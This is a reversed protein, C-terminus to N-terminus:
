DLEPRGSPIKRAPVSMMHHFFYCTLAQKRLTELKLVVEYAPTKQTRYNLEKHSKSSKTLQLSHSITLSSIRRRKEERRKEEEVM